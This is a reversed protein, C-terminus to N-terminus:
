QAPVPKPRFIATQDAQDDFWYDTKQHIHMRMLTELDMRHGGSACEEMLSDPWSTAIRDWYAYLGEVYKM